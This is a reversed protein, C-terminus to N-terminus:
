NTEWRSNSTVNKDRRKLDVKKRKFIFGNLVFYYILPDYPGHFAVIDTTMRVLLVLFLGIYLYEKTKIYKFISRIILTIIVVVGFLGHYAHLRLYSNHLNFGYMSFVINDHIPVGWFFAGISHKINYFYEDIIDGRHNDGIGLRMTREIAGRLLEDYFFTTIVTYILIVLTSIVIINYSKRSSQFQNYLIIILLLLLSVIIGSRGIAWFSFIVSIIAPYFRITIKNQYMSIYYFITHLIMIVLINNRSFGIFLEDPNKGIILNIAFYIVYFIFSVRVIKYNLTYKLLILAIGIYQLVIIFDEPRYNGTYLSAIVGFMLFVILPALIKYKFEMRKMFLIYFLSILGISSMIGYFILGLTSYPGVVMRLFYAFYFLVLAITAKINSMTKQNNGSKNVM